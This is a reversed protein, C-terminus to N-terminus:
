WTSRTTSVRYTNTSHNSSRSPAFPIVNGIGETARAFRDIWLDIEPYNDAKVRLLNGEVVVNARQAQQLRTNAHTNPGQEEKIYNAHTETLLTQPGNIYNAEAYALVARAETESIQSKRLAIDLGVLTGYYHAEQQTMSMQAVLTDEVQNAYNGLFQNFFNERSWHENNLEVRSYIEEINASIQAIERAAVRAQEDTLRVNSLNLQINTDQLLVEGRLLEDKYRNEIDTSTTESETKEKQAKLLDIQAEQLGLNMIGSYDPLASGVSGNSSAPSMGLPGTSTSSGIDGYVLNPNLGAARLRKMMEAPSNYNNQSNLVNLNYARQLASQQANFERNKQNEERQSKLQKNFNIQNAITGGVSGLLSGIASIISM